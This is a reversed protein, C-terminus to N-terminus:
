EEPDRAGPPEDFVWGCSARAIPKADRLIVQQVISRDSQSSTSMQLTLRDQAKADALFEIKARALRGKQGSLRAHDELWGLYVTNNVHGLHDLESPQVSRASPADSPLERGPLQLEPELAVQDPEFVFANQLSPDPTMPKPGTKPDWRVFIWQATARLVIEEGCRGLYERRSRIRKFSQIWTQIEIPELHHLARDISLEISRMVWTVGLAEYKSKPYGAETSALVAAEQLWAM